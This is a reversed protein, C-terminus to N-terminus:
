YEFLSDGQPTYSRWAVEIRKGETPMLARSCEGYYAHLEMEVEAM